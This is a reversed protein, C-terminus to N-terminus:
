EDEKGGTIAKSEALLDGFKGYNVKVGDDLDITIKQDVVHKLKEDFSLLEHQQKKLEDQEKQLKSRHSTSTAKAKDGELQDIRAAIRGQMPIVYETRMRALTGSNYRHMYILCQFARQKGSSVMWYIPRKKYMQLHDKFFDALFYKRLDKGLSSEIFALNENLTAEGFSARLFECTRAVIDDDFWEGALVPIIGDEDPAFTLEALPKGVKELFERLSDGANALILGPHDLSYRGMMCGVAYSLFAAVDKRQDARALTIQEEPVEPQLEGDLGYAAIFLRNNETELEQMRRIAATSQAEWNRWSAELTAGKLGPRLLPQDRFDWSTEFNDWDARAIQVTQQVVEEIEIRRLEVKDSLWPLSAVNSVQFNLTPNLMQMFDHAVRSCLFGTVLLLDDTKPFACSGGVDFLFGRDSYRVGFYSISVFSWTIAQKFYYGENSIKWGLNDGLQPYVARTNEKIEDGDNEWNVVIECNGFWRRYEGGKNYPFWKRSSKAAEAANEFAFGTRGFSVETWRRLFRNNDGTRMGIKAPAVDSLPQGNKFADRVQQTIWYAIPFGPLDQFTDQHTEFRGVNADLFLREKTEPTEVDGPRDFLRRYVGACRKPSRNLLVFAVTGFDSGFIGRGLHLLSEITQQSVLKIRLKEFSSLFLWSPLNIMGIWGSRVALTACRSMFCTMLDAKAEPFDNASFARLETNMGGVGMYPPNAVVVHYRQTLAEAQELVRLVKLHTERLFLQGGLDKAEIARRVDAIAREDLGPQILSGFNKAEEFQHLLRLMPQNFLDGLGLAHIYDRLENEAFRVDRLEIIHPRVLHEPEFFRRNNERAKFVLALEALQAARPCIELGYLNHRLILGPIETPAYGEEEYILTLLDFAYTLMHGSGVAPDCVRIEEPKTIKLFDTEAEGEIYYPMHERLRSGPRNLLWLRGLSNEVLYRVIWHPTFLQTVAPIDETPVASKRAMVQDKKESIYFQYLWGLVEVSECDEADVNAVLKRVLSDTHLLNNPLLLEAEDDVRTYLFPMAENLANCQAVLLMRYLEEERSGDIKLDIITEAKLGPLSVNEAEQLLEPTDKKGPYSLVRYGHDFYGKLEMYRIAVLRNFWTYALAEMTQEYGNEAIRKVLKQRKRGVSIPYSQGVIVVVDGQEKVPSVHDATIGYFAARDKMAQIFDVRAQPAYSKLRPRNM